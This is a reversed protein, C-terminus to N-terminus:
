GIIEFVNVKNVMKHNFHNIKSSKIKGKVTVIDGIELLNVIKKLYSHSIDCYVKKDGKTEIDVLIFRFDGTIESVMGTYKFM